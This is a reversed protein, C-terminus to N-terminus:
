FSNLMVPEKPAASLRARFHVKDIWNRNGGRHGGLSAAITKNRILADGEPM